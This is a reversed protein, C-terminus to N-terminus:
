PTACPDRDVGVVQVGRAALEAAFAAGMGAAAGTVIAWPGYRDAFATV